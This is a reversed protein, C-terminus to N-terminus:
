RSVRMFSRVKEAEPADPKLRLFNNFCEMMKDPRKAHSYALGAYYHAYAKEPDREIVAELDPLAKDYQKRSVAIAGRVFALDPHNSNIVAESQIQEAARDVQKQHLYAEALAIRAEASNGDDAVAKELIPTAEAYKGEKLLAIGQGLDAAVVTGAAFVVWLLSRRIM